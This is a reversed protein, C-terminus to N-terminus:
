LPANLKPVPVLVIVNFPGIVVLEPLITPLLAAELKVTAEVPAKVPVKAREPLKPAKLQVLDVPPVTEPLKLTAVSKVLLELLEM